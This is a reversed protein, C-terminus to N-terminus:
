ARRAGAERRRHRRPPLPGSRRVRAALAPRQAGRAVALQRPERDRQADVRRLADDALRGLWGLPEGGNPVGTHWFGMSSFHSLSPHDYGCGHVVALLGDKYLREFGVMSPISASAMPRGQDGRTRRDRAEAQRSLVGSRRVARRHELRRQRRVARDVVLIREPHKEVSTGQLAQAALAASTRSLILPLGAGVGIGYLGRVLFDRRSCSCGLHM